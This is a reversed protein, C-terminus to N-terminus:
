QSLPISNALIFPKILYRMILIIFLALFPSLSLKTGGSSLLEDDENIVDVHWHLHHM